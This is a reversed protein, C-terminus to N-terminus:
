KARFVYVSPFEHANNDRVEEHDGKFSKLLELSPADLLKQLPVGAEAPGFHSDWTILTGKALHGLNDNIWWLNRTKNTDFPDRDLKFLIYPHHCLVLGSDIKQERIWKAAEQEPYLDNTIRFPVHSQHLCQFINCGVAVIAVAPAIRKRNTTMDQLKGLAMVIIVAALPSVGAMVRLLGLSGFLGFRWFISHMVLYVFFCAFLLWTEEIIFPNLVRQKLLRLFLWGCGALFLVVGATGLIFENNRVFHFLPGHGYVDEAGTYPNQHLIWLFDHYYFGGIISYLLTGAGLFPLLKWQGRLLLVMGFLPLLFFGETRTFPLFSVLLAAVLYRQKMTLLVSATLVLAFLPETLGSIIVVFYLPMFITFLVAFPALRLNLTRCISATCWATAIACLLNFVVAGNYGLQAFPSCLLIYFPKGWHNLLLGPHKWSYHAIQYHNVGDGPDYVGDSLLHVVVPAIM